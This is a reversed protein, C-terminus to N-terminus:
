CISLGLLGSGDATEAGCCAQQMFRAHMGRMHYRAQAALAPLDLEMMRKRNREIIAQRQKAFDGLDEEAGYWSHAPVDFLLLQM